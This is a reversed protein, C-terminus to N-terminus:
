RSRSCIRTKREVTALRGDILEAVARIRPKRKGRLLKPRLKQKLPRERDRGDLKSGVHFSVVEVESTAAGRLRAILNAPPRCFRRGQKIRRSLEIRLPAATRCSAGQCARLGALRSALKSRVTAYAPNAAQNTLEYPDTALDYLEVAGANNGALHEAFVYRHTRVAAYNEQEILIERGRTRNPHETFPLLSRGDVAIPAEANAADLITPALDANVALEDITAGQKGVGPGRILLPVRIAEEYVRNKGELIRHEGHFFGNDSTFVVLTDSAEGADALAGIVRQVGEDIALLSEARCRYNRTIRAIQADTLPPTAAIEPPKDAVDAENFSPPSPLPASGFAGIHRAAPKASSECRYPPQGQPSNPGGGHPALYALSLFFPQRSPARRAILEVAKDTYLDTSYTAPNAPSDPNEQRSGYGVLQGNELLEYGYFTYTRKSGHWESWGPPVGVASDEYGNLYKGIHATYYGARQLWAPLTEASNLRDFGGLPPQNGRVNHNHAYQGTLFTARSPCCLPWNVFSNAFTAGNGGILERTRPMADLSVQTQDDSMIVVVNPRTGDADQAAAPVAGRALLSLTLSGVLVAIAIGLPARQAGQRGARKAM